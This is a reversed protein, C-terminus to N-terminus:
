GAQYSSFILEDTPVIREYIKERLEELLREELYLYDELKFEKTANRATFENELIVTHWIQLAEMKRSQFAWAIILTLGVIIASLSVIVAVRIIKRGM